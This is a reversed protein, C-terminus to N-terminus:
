VHRIENELDTASDFGLFVDEERVVDLISRRVQTLAVEPIATLMTLRKRLMRSFLSEDRLSYKFIEQLLYQQNAVSLNQWRSWSCVLGDVKQLYPRVKEFTNQTLREPFIAYDGSSDVYIIANERRMKRRYKRNEVLRWSHDEDLTRSDQPSPPISSSYEGCQPEFDEFADHFLLSKCSHTYSFYGGMPLILSLQGFANLAQAEATKQGKSKAECVFYLDDKKYLLDYSTNSSPLCFERAVLDYGQKQLQWHAALQAQHEPSGTAYAVKKMPVLEKIHSFPKVNGSSFPQCEDSSIVEDSSTESLNSSNSISLLIEKQVETVDHLSKNVENIKQKYLKSIDAILRDCDFKKKSSSFAAKISNIQKLHSDNISRLATVIEILAFIAACMLSFIGIVVASFLIRFNKDEADPMYIGSQINYDDKVSNHSIKEFESHDEDCYTCFYHSMVLSPKDDDDFLIQHVDKSFAKALSVFRTVAFPDIVFVFLTSHNEYVLDFIVGEYAVRFGICKGFDLVDASRSVHRLKQSLVSGEILYQDVEDFLHSDSFTSKKRNEYFSKKNAVDYVGAQQKYESEVRECCRSQELEIALEESSTVPRQSECDQDHFLVSENVDLLLQQAQEVLEGSSTVPQHTEFDQDRFPESEKIDQLSQQAQDDKLDLSKLHECLTLQSISESSVNTPRILHFKSCYDYKGDYFNRFVPQLSLNFDNALLQLLKLNETSFHDLVVFLRNHVREFTVQILMSGRYLVRHAITVWESKQLGSFKTFCLMNHVRKDLRLDERTVTLDTAKLFKVGSFSQSVFYHFHQTVIQSGINLVKQSKPIPLASDKKM